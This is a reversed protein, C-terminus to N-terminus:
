YTIEAFPVLWLPRSYARPVIRFARSTALALAAPVNAVVALHMEAESPYAAILGDCRGSRTATTSHSGSVADGAAARITGSSRALSREATCRTSMHVSSTAEGGPAIKKTSQVGSTGAPPLAHSMM